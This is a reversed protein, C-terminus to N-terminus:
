SHKWLRQAGSLVHGNDDHELKFDVKYPSDQVSNHMIEVPTIRKLEMYAQIKIASSGLESIVIEDSTASIMMMKRWPRMMTMRKWKSRTKTTKRKRKKEQGRPAMLGPTQSQTPPKEVTKSLSAPYQLHLLM